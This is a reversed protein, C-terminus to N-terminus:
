SVANSTLEALVQGQGIAWARLNTTGWDVAIWDPRIESRKNM